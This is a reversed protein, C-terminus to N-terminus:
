FGERIFQSFGPQYRPPMNQIMRRLQERHTVLLPLKGEIGKTLPTANPVV